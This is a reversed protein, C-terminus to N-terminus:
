DQFMPEIETWTGVPQIPVDRLKSFWGDSAISDQGPKQKKKQEEQTLYRAVQERIYFGKGM